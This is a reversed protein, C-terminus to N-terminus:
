KDFATIKVKKGNVKLSRGNDKLQKDQQEESALLKKLYSDVEADSINVDAGETLAETVYSHLLNDRHSNFLQPTAYIDCGIIKNGTVAVLGVVDHERQLAKGFHDKYQRIEENFRPNNTVATYTGTHTATGNAQNIEAVKQWVRQQNKEKVITKRLASSASSHYENFSSGGRGASWRGSEVCYVPVQITKGPALLTDKEIVRDQKGGKVIDGMGVIVTDKSKNQFLLTNVTGGSGLESVTVKSERIAAALSQYTGMGAFERYLSPKARIYYLKVKKFQNVSGAKARANAEFPSFLNKSELQAGAHVSVGVLAICTVIRKM